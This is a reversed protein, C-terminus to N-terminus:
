ERSSHLNGQGPEGQLFWVVTQSPSLSLSFFTMQAGGTCLLCVESEKPQVMTDELFKVLVLNSINSLRDKYDQNFM